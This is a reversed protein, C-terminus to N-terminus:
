WNKFPKDPTNDHERNDLPAGLFHHEDAKASDLLERAEEQSM